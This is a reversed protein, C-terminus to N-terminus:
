RNQSVQNLRPGRSDMPSQASASFAIHYIRDQTSHMKVHSGFCRVRRERRGAHPLQMASFQLFASLIIQSILVTFSYTALHRMPFLCLRFVTLLLSLRSETNSLITVPSTILKLNAIPVAFTHQRLPM